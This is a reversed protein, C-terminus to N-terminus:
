KKKRQDESILFKDKIHLTGNQSCTKNKREKSMSFKRKGLSFLKCVTIGNGVEQSSVHKQSFFHVFIDLFDVRKCLDTTCYFSEMNM